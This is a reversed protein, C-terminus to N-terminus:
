RHMGPLKRLKYIVAGAILSGFVPVVAYEKIMVACGFFIGALLFSIYKQADGSNRKIPRLICAIGLLIFLMLPVEGIFQSGYTLFQINVAVLALAWGAKKTDTLLAALAFFAFACCLAMCVILMRAILMDSGCLNMWFSALYHFLVGCTIFQSNPDAVGRESDLPYALVGTEALHKSVRWHGTDDYWIPSSFAFALLSLAIIPAFPLFAMIVAKMGRGEGPKETAM